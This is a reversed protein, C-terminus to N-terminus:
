ALKNLKLFDPNFLEPKDYKNYVEKGEIYTAVVQFEKNIVVFDADKGPKISGKRNSFGYKKSPNLSAMPWVKELPMHLNKVLNKMGDLVSKSSGNIRGCEDM